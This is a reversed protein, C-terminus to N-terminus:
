GLPPWLGITQSLMKITLVLAAGTKKPERLPGRAHRAGCRRSPGSGLGKPFRRIEHGCWGFGNGALLSEEPFGLRQFLHGAGFPFAQAVAARAAAQFLELVLISSFDVEGM